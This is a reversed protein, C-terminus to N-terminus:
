EQLDWKDEYGYIFQGDKGRAIRITGCGLCILGKYGVGRQDTVRKTVLCSEFPGTYGCFGCHSNRHAKIRHGSEEESEVTRKESGDSESPIAGSITSGRDIKKPRGPGRQAETFSESM